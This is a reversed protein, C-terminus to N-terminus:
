TLYRKKPKSDSKRPQYASEIKENKDFLVKCLKCIGNFQQNIWNQLQKSINQTM